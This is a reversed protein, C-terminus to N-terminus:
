HAYSGSGPQNGAWQMGAKAFDPVQSRQLYDQYLRAMAAERGGFEGQALGAQQGMINQAGQQYVQQASQRMKEIDAQYDAAKSALDVSTRQRMGAQAALNASSYLGGRSGLTEGIQSAQENAKQNVAATYKDFMDQFAPAMSQKGFQDLQGAYGGIM